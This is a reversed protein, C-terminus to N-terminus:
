SPEADRPFPLLPNTDTRDMTEKWLRRSHKLLRQALDSAQHPKPPAPAALVAAAELLILMLERNEEDTM